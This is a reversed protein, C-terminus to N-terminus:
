KALEEKVESKIVNTTTKSGMILVNETYTGVGSSFQPLKLIKIKSGFGDSIKGFSFDLAFESPSSFKFDGTKKDEQFSAKFILGGTGGFFSTVINKRVSIANLDFGSALYQAGSTTTFGILAAKASNLTFAEAVATGVYWSSYAEYGAVAIPVAEILVPLLPLAVVAATYRGDTSPGYDANYNASAERSISSAGTMAGLADNAGGAVVQLAKTVVNVNKTAKVTVEALETSPYAEGTYNGDADTREWSDGMPQSNPNVKPNAPELGELEIMDIVRNGSFQYPTYFPYKYTLPDVAFFRGVRPDHMRFTYNMSNGEGKLEDDKEQGQFGYRYEKADEHRNPVLM